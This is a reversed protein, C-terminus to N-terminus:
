SPKAVILEDRLAKIIASIWIGENAERVGEGSLARMEKSGAHHLAVLEWDQNFVPSGSSGPETPARYHLKPSHVDVVRNDQISISLTGGQPHGIVYVRDQDAVPMSVALPYPPDCPVSTELRLVSADLQEPPSTWLVQKVAYTKDADERGEFRVRTREPPTGPPFRKRVDPDSSIVHANTILLAEGTLAPHLDEGRILFGTGFGQGWQTEIRAVGACRQLGTRYWRLPVFRTDGLVAELANVTEQIMAAGVQQGRGLVVRGGERQLLASQLIPLVTSGPESGPLLQWVETLQRMTSALEFADATPDSVYAVLWDKADSLRNLAICAEVATARDLCEVRDRPTIAELTELIEIAIARPDPSAGLTIGDREARCLCAVTNIGHWLYRERDLAYIESYAEVARELHQRRSKNAAKVYSQKHARGILGRAEAHESPNKLEGTPSTDMALVTLVNLAATISGQDILGQAYHRRVHPDNQGSQIAADAVCEILHSFRKNRLASLIRKIPGAPAPEHDSQIYLVLEDCVKAAAAKDFDKTAANVREVFESYDAVWRGVKCSSNLGKARNGPDIIGRGFSVGHVLSNFGGDTQQVQNQSCADIVPRCVEEGKKARTGEYM